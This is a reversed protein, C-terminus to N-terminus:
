DIRVWISDGQGTFAQNFYIEKFGWRSMYEQIEHYFHQDKWIRYPALEVELHLAKLHRLGYGFSELVEYTHGEVDIKILDLEFRNILRLLTEGTIALVKIWNAPPHGGWLPDLVVPLLSSTGVTGEDYIDVPIANFDVVGPKDSIALQFSTFEPYAATMTKYSRPHPEVLFVSHPSIDAIKRLKESDRGDRSGIELISTPQTNFHNIYTDYFQQM